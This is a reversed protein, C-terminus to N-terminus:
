TKESLIMKYGTGRLTEINVNSGEIKERLHNVHVDVTRTEGYYDFGWVIELLKERSFVIGPNQALTTLLAYEKTRLTLSNGNLRAEHRATDIRLDGFEVIQNEEKQGGQFRRLVARIRAVLERPNFPKTLYDDAGMELGVIKDVDEKRATLMLIPVNSKTRIQRCVQFGDIDPLMLDLIVMDPNLATIRALAEGGRSATEVQYGENGLYLKVLELINLEDDVVLIKPLVKVGSRSKADRIISSFL